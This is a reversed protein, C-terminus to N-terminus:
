FGPKLHKVTIIFSVIDYSRYQYKSIRKAPETTLTDEIYEVLGTLLVFMEFFCYQCEYFRM